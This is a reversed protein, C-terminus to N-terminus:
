TRKNCYLVRHNTANSHISKMCETRHIRNGLVNEFRYWDGEVNQRSIMRLLLAAFVFTCCAPTGQYSTFFIYLLTVDELAQVTRPGKRSEM